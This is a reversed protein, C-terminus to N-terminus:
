LNAWDLNIEACEKIGNQWLEDQEMIHADVTYRRLLQLIITQVSVNYKNANKVLIDNLDDGVEIIYKM